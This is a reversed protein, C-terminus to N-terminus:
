HAHELEQALSSGTKEVLPEPASVAPKVDSRFPLDSVGRVALPAAAAAPVQGVVSKATNASPPVSIPRLLEARSNAQHSLQESAAAAPPECPELQGTLRAGAEHKLDGYIIKAAILVGGKKMTLLRNVCVEKDTEVRGAVILEDTNIAGRVVGGENVDIVGNSEIEGDIVGRVVIPKRGKIRLKGCFEVDADIVTASTDPTAAADRGSENTM